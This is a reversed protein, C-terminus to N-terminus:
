LWFQYGIGLLVRIGGLDVNIDFPRVKLPVSKVEASLFLGRFLGVNMGAGIITTWKKHDVRRRVFESDIDQKYFYYGIGIKLFTRVKPIHLFPVGVIGSLQLGSISLTSDEQFLGIPASKRYGGEYSFELSYLFSPSYRVYPEYVYGDGYVESLLTDNLYRYGARIGISFQAGYSAYVSLFLLFCLIFIKKAPKKPPIKM